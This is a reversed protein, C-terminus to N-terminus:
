DRWLPVTFKFTSGVGLESEIKITGKHKEVFEKCLILGIGTGQENETGSTSHHIDLRFLKDIDEQKMGLGTDSVSIEVWDLNTKAAVNINGNNFTFKIANSILNRVITNIMMLDADIYID